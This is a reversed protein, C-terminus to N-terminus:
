EAALAAHSYGAFVDAVKGESADGAHVYVRYKLVLSGGKPLTHEKWGVSKAESFYWPNAAFLGYARVHWTGPYRFSSPHNMVSVGVKKGGFDGSYDVWPANTARIAKEGKNGLADVMMDPADGKRTLETAVRVGFSGEKAMKQNKGLVVDGNAATWTITWDMVADAGANLILVDQVEVLDEGWHNEAVVRAYAPGAEKKVIRKNVIDTKSWYERGNVDGFAHYVGAQHPHDKAEGARDEFPFCRLVNVGHAVLPYFCPKKNAKGTVPYYRTIERDPAKISISGEPGDALALAPAKASASRLTFRAKQGAPVHPVLWRVKGDEVQTALATGKEDVAECPPSVKAPLPAEALVWRRDKEHPALTLTAEEAVPALLVLLAIRLM